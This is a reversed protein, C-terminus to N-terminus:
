QSYRRIKFDANGGVDASATHLYEETIMLVKM